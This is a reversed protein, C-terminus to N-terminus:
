QCDKAGIGYVGAGCWIKKGDIPKAIAKVYSCKTEVAKNAPNLWSYSIWGQGDRKIKAIMEAYFYKGKADQLATQNVGVLKKSIPHLLTIGAYDSVWVYGQQGCFRYKELEPFASKGKAELLGAAHEVAKQMAGKTCTDAALIPSVGLLIAGLIVAAVRLAKM